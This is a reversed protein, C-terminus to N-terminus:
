KSQGYYRLHADCSGRPIQIDYMPVDSNLIESKKRLISLCPRASMVDYSFLQSRKRMNKRINESNTHAIIQDFNKYLIPTKAILDYFEMVDLTGNHDKDAEFFIKSWDIDTETDVCEVASEFEKLDIGCNGDVDIAGFLKMVQMSYRKEILKSRQELLYIKELNKIIMDFYKSLTQTSEWKYYVKLMSIFYRKRLREEEGLHCQMAYYLSEIHLKIHEPIDQFTRQSRFSRTKKQTSCKSFTSNPMVRPHM